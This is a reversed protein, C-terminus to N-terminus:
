PEGGRKKKTEERGGDMRGNQTLTKKHLEPQGGAQKTAWAAIQFVTNAAQSSLNYAPILRGLYQGSLTKTHSGKNETNSQTSNQNVKTERNSDAKTGDSINDTWEYKTILYYPCRSSHQLYSSNSGPRATCWSKYCCPRYNPHVWNQSPM